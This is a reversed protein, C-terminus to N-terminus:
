VKATVTPASRRLEPVAFRSLRGANLVVSISSAAMAVAAIMPSLLTGTLPYIVGAAIPIASVNYAFALVLNQRINRMTAKSLAISAVLGRLEGSVLTIDAAEIAVDTGTGIAVGVDAQALAPADNIGDGVMAVLRGEDQLDRVKAAKADPLVDALVRDIGVQRAIADATRPNDGTIMAVELGMRRLARIADASDPKLTDAVAIVGAPRGDVAVYMPTKGEEALRSATDHLPEVAIGAHTLLRANGVLIQQGDVLATIGKGTVSDFETAQALDLGRERAGTVIAAGLPHESGREASAVLTLLADQDLPGQVEVDTLSPEGRTITGTKDLVITHVKHVTELAEADRILVGAQAGKGTGVMISLPTALGLACPCAIILVSVAAVLAFTLSPAPGVVFWIVFTAIAIFIAAPVFFSAVLDALRQIPAKSSQAEQVMRIIQSLMTDGGVGTTRMTFSGTSNVTAGIVTDGERKAVPLSEGTVMSEDVSSEGRVVIGDVPVKEGPRVLVEDGVEVEDAAVETEHGDRLVTATRPALQVLARMADGTGARARAEILRGLLIVTIIFGVVEYYVGRLEAPLLGPAVTALLSYAFAAITGISILTNMDASRNRLAFLGTRHIPWGVVLMVPTVLLLQLWPNELADPVYADDVLHGVMAAYLVPLTLVTGVLVRWSLDRVEARRAEAEDDETPTTGPERRTEAPYGTAQRVADRLGEEDLIEPDYSVVAREAGFNVEASEVGGIARLQAEAQATNSPLTRLAGPLAFEVRASSPGAPARPGVGVARATDRNHATVGRAEERAKEGTGLPAAHHEHGADVANDDADARTHSGDREVVLTGHLMNMGCAFGYEGPEPPPLEVTTTSFAALSKSVRFDPFVVKATCDSNEERKFRLLVPTGAKVEILNPSYGGKVTVDVTQVGGEVRARTAQRPSFFFWALGGISLVGLVIVVLDASNM